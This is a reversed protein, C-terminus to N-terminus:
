NDRHYKHTNQSHPQVSVREREREEKTLTNVVHANVKGHSTIRFGNKIKLKVDPDMDHHVIDGKKLGEHEKKYYTETGTRQQRTMQGDGRAENLFEDFNM